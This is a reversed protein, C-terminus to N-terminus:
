NKDPGAVLSHLQRPTEVNAERGRDTNNTQYRSDRHGVLQRPWAGIRSEGSGYCWSSNHRTRLVFPQPFLTGPQQCLDHEPEL